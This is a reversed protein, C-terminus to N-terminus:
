APSSKWPTSVPRPPSSAPACATQTQVAVELGRIAGSGEPSPPHFFEDRFLARSKEAEASFHEADSSKGLAEAMEMMLRANYARYALGILRDPTEESFHLWDGFSKADPGNHRNDDTCILDMYKKM